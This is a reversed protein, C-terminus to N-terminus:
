NVTAGACACGGDRGCERRLQSRVDPSCKGCCSGVGLQERLEQFTSIGQAITASIQRDTVAHCICVYM